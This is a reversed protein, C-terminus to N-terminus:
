TRAFCNFVAVDKRAYGTIVITAFRVHYWEQTIKYMVFFGVMPRREDGGHVTECTMECEGVLGSKLSIHSSM